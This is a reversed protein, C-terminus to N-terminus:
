FSAEVTLMLNKSIQLFRVTQCHYVTMATLVPGGLFNFLGPAARISPGILHM